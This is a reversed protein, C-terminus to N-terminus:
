LLLLIMRVCCTTRFTDMHMKEDWISKLYIKKLLLNAGEEEKVLFLNSVDFNSSMLRFVNM